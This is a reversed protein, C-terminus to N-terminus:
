KGGLGAKKVKSSFPASPLSHFAPSTVQVCDASPFCLDSSCQGSVVARCLHFAFHLWSRIRVEMIVADSPFVRLSRTPTDM